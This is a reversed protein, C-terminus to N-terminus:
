QEENQWEQTNLLVFLHEIIPIGYYFSTIRHDNVATLFIHLVPYANDSQMAQIARHNRKGNYPIVLASKVYFKYSLGTAAPALMSRSM